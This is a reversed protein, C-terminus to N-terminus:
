RNNFYSHTGRYDMSKVIREIGQIYAATRYSVKESEARDLCLQTERELQKTLNKEVKEESWYDGSRNQLWEYYSVIVGGANTLVDPLIPINNAELIKEGDASVPGNAIELIVSAKVDAANEETVANELAALALVDVDLGLLEEKTIHDFEGEECVSDDCYIMGRLEQERHKHQWIPNPRLGGNKDTFIAGKSDSVAVIKYGKEFALQAFYYGANGFGQVAVTTEEPKKGTRKIYQDLVKLAGNGTAQTRGKSGGLCLPKGTIVSPVQKREIISYEDAMWGMIIENTNVDPAPIDIDPGIVDHVARIYGRALRELELRSLKKPDVCVGGKGGGYPLGVVSCKITMWFSLATVEDLCVGPHFRIGGKAPGCTDDYRVRWGQFVKLSGDDMRVPISVQISMKPNNLREKADGSVDLKEWVPTLHSHADKLINSM